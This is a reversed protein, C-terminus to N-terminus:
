NQTLAQLEADTCRIPYYSLKSIHGNLFGGTGATNSGLKINTMTSAVSGTNDSAVSSNVALSSDDTRYAVVTKNAADANWSRAIYIGTNSTGEITASSNFRLQLSNTGDDINWVRPTNTGGGSVIGNGSRSFEAYLTGEDARFWSSFNAGTM